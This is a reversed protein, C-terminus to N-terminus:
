VRMYIYLIYIHIFRVILLLCHHIPHVKIRLCAGGGYNKLNVMKTSYESQFHKLYFLSTRQEYIINLTNAYTKERIMSNALVSYLDARLCAGDLVVTVRTEGIYRQGRTNYM